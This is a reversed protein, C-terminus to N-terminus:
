RQRARDEAQRRQQPVAPRGAAPHRLRPDGEMQAFSPVQVFNFYYLLGIWVIGVLVHAWRLLFQLGPERHFIQIAELM